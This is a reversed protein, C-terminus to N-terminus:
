AIRARRQALNRCCSLGAKKRGGVDMGLFRESLEVIRVRSPHDM